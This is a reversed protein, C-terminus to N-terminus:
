PRALHWVNLYNDGTKDGAAADKSYTYLPWGKYAWQSTNDDRKIVTFDNKGATATTTLPPWLVACGGNCASKGSGQTDKDFTYLTKGNLGIFVGDSIKVPASDATGPPPPTSSCATALTAVGLAAAVLTLRLQSSM